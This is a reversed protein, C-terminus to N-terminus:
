PYGSNGALIMQKAETSRLLMSAVKPWKQEIIRYKQGIKMNKKTKGKNKCPAV